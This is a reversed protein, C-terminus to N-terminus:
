LAFELWSKGTESHWGGAAGAPPPRRPRRSRPAGPGRPAPISGGSGATPPTEGRGPESILRVTFLGGCGSATGASSACPQFVPQPPRRPQWACPSRRPPPLASSLLPSCLPAAPPPSARRRARGQPLVRAGPDAGSGARSGCGQGAGAQGGRAAGAAEGGWGGAGPGPRCSPAAGARRGWRRPLCLSVDGCAGRTRRGRRGPLGAAAPIFPPLSPMAWGAAAKGFLRALVNRPSSPAAHPKICSNDASCTGALLASTDGQEAGPTPMIMIGVPVPCSAASSLSSLPRFASSSAESDTLLSNCVTEPHPPLQNRELGRGPVDEAGHAASM